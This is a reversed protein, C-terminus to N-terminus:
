RGEASSRPGLSRPPRSGGISAALEDFLRLTAVGDEPALRHIAFGAHVLLYDGVGVPEGLADLRAQVRVGGYDVIASDGEIAIVQGPAALCM